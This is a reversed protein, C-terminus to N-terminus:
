ADSLLKVADSPYISDKPVRMKVKQSGVNYTIEETNRKVWENVAKKVKIYYAEKDTELLDKYYEKAKDSMKQKDEFFKVYDRDSKLMGTPKGDKM